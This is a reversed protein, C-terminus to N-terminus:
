PLDPIPGGAPLRAAAGAVVLRGGAAARAAAVGALHAVPPYLAPPCSDTFSCAVGYGGKVMINSEGTRINYRIINTQDPNKESDNEAVFTENDLWSIHNVVGHVKIKAFKKGTKTYTYSLQKDDVDENNISIVMTKGNPSISIEKITQGKLIWPSCRIQPSIGVGYEERVMESSAAELMAVSFFCKVPIIPHM